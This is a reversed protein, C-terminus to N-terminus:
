HVAQAASSPRQSWHPCTSQPTKQKSSTRVISSGLFTTLHPHIKHETKKGKDKDLTFHFSVFRFSNFLFKSLFPLFPPFPSQNIALSLLFTLEVRTVYRVVGMLNALPVGVSTLMVRQNEDAINNNYWADLIVSPASTGWTMMFCAFYAVNLQAEADIAAYIIFGIMTLAFGLAVFPFRLRTLDSAFGLLLLMAAGTINPAVTYLNTKVTSYGLRKVIVPLYLSVSQLPVGLCIEIGLILWSTPHRFIKVAQGLNFKEGVVSSSDVQIRYFALNKEDVTLFKASQANQPLYWFAFFSFIITCSGEILFLYRWNALSGTTIHFVGFALLGSFANAINSAAYVIALRRALEGRRYFTTQYYIVQHINHDPQYVTM